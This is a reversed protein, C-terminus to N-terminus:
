KRMGEARRWCMALYERIEPQQEVPQRKIAEGWKDRPVRWEIEVANFGWDPRMKEGVCPPLEDEIRQTPLAQRAPHTM